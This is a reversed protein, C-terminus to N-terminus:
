KPISVPRPFCHDIVSCCFNFNAQSINLMVLATRKSAAREDLL